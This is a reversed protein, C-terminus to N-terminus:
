NRLHLAKGFFYGRSLVMESAPGVVQNCHKLFYESIEISIDDPPWAIWYSKFRIFAWSGKLLSNLEQRM